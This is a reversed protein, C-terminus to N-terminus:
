DSDRTRNEVCRCTTQLGQLRAERVHDKCTSAVPAAEAKRGPDIERLGFRRRQRSRERIGGEAM